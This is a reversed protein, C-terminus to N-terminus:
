RRKHMRASFAAAGEPTMIGAISALAFRDAERRIAEEEEDSLDAEDDEDLDKEDSDGAAHEDEGHEDDEDDGFYADDFGEVGCCDCEGSVMAQAWLAGGCTAHDGIAKVAEAADNLVEHRFACATALEQPSAAKIDAETLSGAAPFAEFASQLTALWGGFGGTSREAASIGADRGATNTNTKTM